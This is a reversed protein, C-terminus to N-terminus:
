PSNKHLEERSLSVMVVLEQDSDKLERITVEFPLNIVEMCPLNVILTLLSIVIGQVATKILRLEAMIVELFLPMSVVVLAVLM